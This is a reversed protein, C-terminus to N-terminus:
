GGTPGMSATVETARVTGTQAKIHGRNAKGKGTFSKPHLWSVPLSTHGTINPGDPPKAQPGLANMPVGRNDIQKYTTM